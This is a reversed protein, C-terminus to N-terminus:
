AKSLVSNVFLHNFLVGPGVKETSPYSSVHISTPESQSAISPPKPLRQWLEETIFPMFPALLKLSSDLCLFLAARCGEVIRVDNESSCEM